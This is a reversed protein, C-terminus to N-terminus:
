TTNTVVSTFRSEGATISDTARRLEVGAVDAVTDDPQGAALAVDVGRLRGRVDGQGLVAAGGVGGLHQQEGGVVVGMEVEGLAHSQRLLDLM